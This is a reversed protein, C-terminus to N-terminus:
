TNQYVKITHGRWVKLLGVLFAVNVLLFSGASAALPWRQRRFLGILGAAGLALFLVCLTLPVTSGGGGAELAAGALVGIVFVPSLWRLIKHLWLAFAYRPYRLPNLLRGRSFTGLWNRVTMRVRARFEKTATELNEDWAVASEAQVVRKGQLIVDLPLVCDDGYDAALDKWLERRLAMAPGATTALMGLESELRRLKLEYSWYRGQDQGTVSGHSTHLLRATVCGVEGDAFSRVLESVCNPAMMAAMDTLVLLSGHAHAVAQNQARSKGQRGATRLLEVRASFERAIDETADSSGDSVVVIQLKDAPYDQALLNELKARIRREENYAPLVVTVAAAAVAAGGPPPYREGLLLRLVQLLRGYGDYIFYIGLLSLGSLWTGLTLM